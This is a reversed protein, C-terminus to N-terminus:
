TTHVLRRITQFVLLVWSELLLVHGIVLVPFPVTFVLTIGIWGVLLGTVGLLLWLLCKIEPTLDIDGLLSNSM